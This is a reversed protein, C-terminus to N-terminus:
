DSVEKLFINVDRLAAKDADTIEEGAAVTLKDPDFTGSLYVAANVDAATGVEVDECLIGYPTLTENSAASTGLVVLKGDGASGGSIALVTGRVLTAATGLKRITGGGVIVDPAIDAFLGDSNVPGLNKYLTREAM